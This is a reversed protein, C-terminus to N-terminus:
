SCDKGALSACITRRGTSAHRVSSTVRSASETLPTAMNVSHVSKYAVQLSLSTRHIVARAGIQSELAPRAHIRAVSARTRTTM